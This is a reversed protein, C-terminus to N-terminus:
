ESVRERSKVLEVFESVSMLWSRQSPLYTRAVRVPVVLQLDRARMEDTQNESISPEVTVLHKQPIRAAETLVQRWRDKCTTKAGLMTLGSDPFSCDRYEAIGPFLFDPKSRNETRKGREYRVGHASLVAAIHNEFAQGARSKRSNQVSLSFSLFGEVDVEGNDVFGASLRGTIRHREMRRFLKEEQGLWTVLAADPDDQANVDPVTSRAFESFIATTPMVGNFIGLWRDLQDAEPEEIDIGLEDLVIRVPFDLEAQESIAHSSFAEDDNGQLDFLWRLQREVTTEAVAVIMMLTGDARRAIFLSDGIGALDSMITTPYYLRYESRTPHNRRADYWTVSSDASLVEGEAGMWLFRTAFEQREGSGTGLVNKLETTGNLEHQNSSTAEVEVASLRKVAVAEFYDSLYGQKM